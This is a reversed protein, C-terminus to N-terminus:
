LFIDNIDNKNGYHILSSGFPVFRPSKLNMDTWSQGWKIGIQGVKPGCRVVSSFIYVLELCHTNKILKDNEAYM